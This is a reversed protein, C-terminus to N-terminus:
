IKYSTKDFDAMIMIHSCIAAVCVCVPVFIDTEAVRVDPITSKSRNAIFKDTKSLLRLSKSQRQM